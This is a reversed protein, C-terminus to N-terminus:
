QMEELNPHHPNHCNICNEGPNHGNPDVAPMDARNSQPYPLFAHCRLCLLRSTDILLKEPDDPHDIAPDHCNECQIIRHPSSLNEVVKEEHCERCYEKGQYKVKFQKWEEINSKRHFGYTFNRGHVGFDSPVVNARVILLLAVAGIAVFLPRWAHNKM